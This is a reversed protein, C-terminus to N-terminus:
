TSIGGLTWTTATTAASRSLWDWDPVWSSAISPNTANERTSIGSYVLFNAYDPLMSKAVETYVQETTKSYDPQITHYSTIALFGYIKDRPDTAQLHLSNGLRSEMDYEYSQSRTEATRSSLITSLVTLLIRSVALIKDQVDSDMHSIGQRIHFGDRDLLYRSGQM